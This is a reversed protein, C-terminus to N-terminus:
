GGGPEHVRPGHQCRLRCLEWSEPVLGKLNTQGECRWGYLPTGEGEMECSM